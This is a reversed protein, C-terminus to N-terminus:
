AAEDVKSSELRDRTHEYLAEKDRERAGAGPSALWVLAWSPPRRCM